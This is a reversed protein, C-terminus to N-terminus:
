AQLRNLVGEATVEGGGAGKLLELVYPSLEVPGIVGTLATVRSARREMEALDSAIAPPIGNPGAPAGQVYDLFSRVNSYAGGAKSQREGAM